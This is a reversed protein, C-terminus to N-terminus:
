RMTLGGDVPVTVGTIFSAAPSALYRVTRAVDAVSAIRGLPIRENWYDRVGPRDLTQASLETEVFTPAVANVRIGHRAWELALQKTLMVLGAKSSCYAARDEVAILGAASTVNVIVGSGQPIMRRAVAQAGFFAGKLNTDLISDWQDETVEIAPRPINVGANNVLIDIRDLSAIVESVVVEHSDVNTIDQAVPLCRRGTARVASAVDELRERDRATVAVDAGARALELAIGAGIGRSAGTVLAVNGTLLEDDVLM